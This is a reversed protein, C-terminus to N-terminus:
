IKRKGEEGRNSVQEAEWVHREESREDTCGGYRMQARDKVTVEM